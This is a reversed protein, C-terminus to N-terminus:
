WIHVSVAHSTLAVIVRGMESVDACVRDKFHHTNYMEFTGEAINEGRTNIQFSSQFPVNLGLVTVPEPRKSTEEPENSLAYSTDRLNIDSFCSM